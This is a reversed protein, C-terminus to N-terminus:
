DFGPDEHVLWEDRNWGNQISASEAIDSSPQNSYHLGHRLIIEEIILYGLELRELLAL